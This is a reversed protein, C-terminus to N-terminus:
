LVILPAHPFRPVSAKMYPLSETQKDIELLLFYWFITLNYLKATLNRSFTLYIDYNLPLLCHVEQALTCLPYM